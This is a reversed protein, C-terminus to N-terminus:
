GLAAMELFSFSGTSRPFAPWDSSLPGVMPARRSDPMGVADEPETGQVLEGAAPVSPTPATREAEEM